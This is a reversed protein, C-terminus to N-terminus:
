AAPRRRPGPWSLLARRLPAVRRGGRRRGRRAPRGPHAGAEGGPGAGRDRVPPRGRRTGSAVGNKGHSHPSPKSARPSPRGWRILRPEGFWFSSRVISVSQYWNSAHEM